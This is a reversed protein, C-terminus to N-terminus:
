AKGGKKRHDAKNAPADEAKNQPAPESKAIPAIEAAPEPQSGDVKRFKDPHKTLLEEGYTDSVHFEEGPRLSDAKVSSVSVQDLAALKM